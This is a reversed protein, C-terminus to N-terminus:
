QAPVVPSGLEDAMRTRHLHRLYASYWRTPPRENRLSLSGFNNVRHMLLLLRFLPNAPSLAPDFGALLSQQLREVVRPRFWPKARLLELQLFLRTIDHLRSGRGAMAFDLVVIRDGDVLINGAAFDAHVLVEDLASAPIATALRDIHDLVAQRNSEEFRVRDAAVLRRLRLDIYQRLDPLSVPGRIPDVPQFVRLWEGVRSLVQDLHALTDPGPWWAAHREVHDLLTGARTEETVITLLDPYCAVPRIVGFHREDRMANFVRATTDFEHQVRRRMKEVGGDEAKPKLSKLFLHRLSRGTATDEEVAWHLRSFPRDQSRLVRYSVPQDNLGDAGHGCLAAVTSRLAPLEPPPTRMYAQDDAPQGREKSTVRSPVEMRQIM